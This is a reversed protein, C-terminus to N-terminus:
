IQNFIFNLWLNVSIRTGQQRKIELDLFHDRLLMVCVSLGLIVVASVSISVAYLWLRPDFDDVDKLIIDMVDLFLM